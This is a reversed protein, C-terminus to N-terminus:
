SLGATDRWVDSATAKERRVLIRGRKVISATRGHPGGRNEARLNALVREDLECHLAPDSIAPRPREFKKRLRGRKEIHGQGPMEGLGADFLEWQLRTIFAQDRSHQEDAEKLAHRQRLIVEVLLLVHDGKKTNCSPCALVLNSLDNSGGLSRPLLHDLTPVTHARPFREAEEVTMLERECYFCTLGDREILANIKNIRAQGKPPQFVRVGNGNRKGPGQPQPHTEHNVTVEGIDDALFRPVIWCFRCYEAVAGRILDHQGDPSRSCPKDTRTM